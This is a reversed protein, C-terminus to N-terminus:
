KLVKTGKPERFLNTLVKDGKPMRGLVRACVSEQSPM